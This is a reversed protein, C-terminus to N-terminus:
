ETHDATNKIILIFSFLPPFFYFPSQASQSYRANMIETLLWSSAAQSLSLKVMKYQSNSNEKRYFVAELAQYDGAM